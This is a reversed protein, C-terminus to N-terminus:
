EDKDKRRNKLLDELADLIEDQSLNSDHDSEKKSPKDPQDIIQDETTTEQESPEQLEVPKRKEQEHQVLSSPENVEYFDGEVTVYKRKRRTEGDLLSYIVPIVVLTLFTGSILGGIIAVAMPQQLEAGEGFALALPVMGLITTASTMIIPRTRLQVSEVLADHTSMGKAKLQNVFDLMVIGNNVVIGLLIILGIFATIGIATQTVVLAISLGIVVLPVTFMIIFPLKFSEFQAAMILYIFVAALVIALIMSNISDDLIEQEGGYTFTTTDELELDDVITNVTNTIDSLNSSQAYTITFEVAGEQNMRQIAAPSEGEEIGAVDSLVIYEGESNRITLDELESITETAESELQVIVDLFQNNEEIVTATEGRTSTNVQQAIEGPTLLNERAAEEDVEIVIEPVQEEISLAIDRVNQESDLEDQLEEAQEYLRTQDSDTITFQLTNAEGGFAASSTFARIEADSDARELEREISEVFEASSQTRDDQDVLSVTIDATYSSQNGGMAQNDGSGASSVYNEIERYDDLVSEISEVAEQTRELSTGPEMEVEITFSGQDSDPILETGVTTLGGIGVLLLLFTMFLVAIRHKLVWITSGRLWSMMPSKRRKEESSENPMKLLRSALMPVVTMAVLLSALLSFSVTYALEKFLDGVIGSIFVIPLFVSITTLTSAIIAGSVEKTGDFAAQKPEKKMSLHRYINEIVVIANDVLMGIGLALGGLSMINLGIDAFFMFGFTVIVSFPIAIGVIFPTKLNRLFFLLVVMALLGGFILASTVSDISASIFEGEDYLVATDLDEYTSELLLEDIRDNVANSIQVTNAGSEPMISLQIAEQQNSRTIVQQDELEVSVNAVDNLTIEADTISSGVVVNELDEVNNLESIVRTTLSLDDRIVTGGPLSIDSAQITSVIDSQSLGAEELESQILEVQIEETLSGSEGVSAVGPVKLLEDELDKVQDQFDILDDNSTVAMQIMPMMSPDFKVFSPENADSPLNASRITNIIDLEVDNINTSWDFELIIMSTGETSNSTMNKLGSTTALQQELPITVTDEIENPNVDSYSTIVAAVPPNIEPFLQLPLRSISVIGIIIFLIMGVITFVPRKISFNIM